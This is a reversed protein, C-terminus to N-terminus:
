FIVPFTQYIEGLLLREKRDPDAGHKESINLGRLREMQLGSNGDAAFDQFPASIKEGTSPRAMDAHNYLQLQLM